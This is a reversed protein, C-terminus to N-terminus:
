KKCEALTALKALEALRDDAKRYISGTPFKGKSNKTGAKVGTLIYMAEEITKIPYIHFKGQEVAEIVDNRLMLNVVNDAPILVGQKGNFGRRRCVEFFGEIKRNVGGVAMISGSQSVAGTFAYDFKIPVGSIGSLLAALEAGSASDGEIGAYSQEFCLSGTLVIPKDQAFLGVLYSKIIMMGKTHIPGGMRAERELDLIGGHGVGITCSIQHPLGFEYDGFLTVSLGNARGVGEGSTEVKIVERDYETMYEDEYLNSRFNRMDISEELAALDVDKKGDLKALASAEVMMEKVLPIRLSLRKQDEALRSSFDVIRALSERKFPLLDSDQIIKGLVKVFRKVNAANREAAIQMHAKLKFYKGFREDNYLLLEYTDESGILIVTLELPLPEPEITKTRIQDSEGPDEIKAQGTRLARLLGEWSSPTTLIDDAYVILYGHNAKHIAGARILTFDTYLAGMESEREISGLLNFATPHDAMVVPAGKTESNDVLLNVEFRSFLEEVPSSEPLQLGPIGSSQQPEKAMFLDINDVLEEELDELYDKIKEFQDFEKHLPALLDKLLEKASDQHLKREDKRFGEETKSIRRLITTVEALLDDASNRLTKRLEPDLREFEEDTLIRGEILPILTLGGHDDIELSFGREKALKEMDAFLDEREDQFTRSIREHAKVHPEREFWAPLQERIQSVADSMATKFAKGRGATVCVSIPHDQHAFNYLYLQDPPTPQSAARLTFYERVFYSRGLNADGSLYLNHCTGKIALAMRFAQLARPQFPDYDGISEPIDSSTEFQIKAPDQKSSLRTLSLEKATM